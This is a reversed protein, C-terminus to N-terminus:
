ITMRSIEQYAGVAKDRLAVATQLTREASMVQDVVQQVSTKGSLGGIAAAEGGKITDVSSSVVQNFVDAFSAQSTQSSAATSLGQTIANVGESAIAGVQTVLSTSLPIM